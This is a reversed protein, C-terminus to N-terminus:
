VTDDEYKIVDETLKKCLQAPSRQSCCSTALDLWAQTRKEGGEGQVETQMQAKFAPLDLRFYQSCTDDLKSLLAKTKKLKSEKETLCVTIDASSCCTTVTNKIRDLVTTLVPLSISAHNVGILFLYRDIGHPQAEECLKSSVPNAVDPSQRQQRKLDDVCPLTDLAPKSCCKRFDVSMADLKSESCLVKQFSTIEEIICEPQPQLCCKELGSQFRGSMASAEEFSLGLLNGYYASLGFKFSKLNVQNNCVNSLFRLFIGSSRMQLREQLFCSNKVAPRCCREAMRVHNQTANLVFGAPINRHRRAFEYVYRVAYDKENKTYETCIEENTPDILSPLEDVSYRLSALCLKREHGQLTCCQDIDPHKPFPSDNGCSKESIETAGKDYCDPSADDKCCKEALITMEDAVCSVEQLTGNPFKQSYLVIVMKKFTEIGIAKLEQCVNEKAYNKGKHALLAPVILASILILATSRM